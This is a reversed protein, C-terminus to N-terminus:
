QAAQVLGAGVENSPLSLRRASSVLAQWLAAGRLGTAQAHLAACGAVHPTAMSTGNITRYRRPMPWSSRVDVGPGTLDIQGGNPNIGINSFSALRFRRDIASVAMISPSNAPRSVPRRGNNGAAAVILTGANLARRAVQEYIASPGAGVPVPAGLSMSVIQCKSAVAWNIGALIGGDGGSGGNSLVKGAYIAAEHAVGYRPLQGPSKPGAATGICHTGHGHGDQVQQGPVFSQRSIRRGKFDPHGLDMGTDLVALRIGKGSHCSSHAQVAQLGWTFQSESLAAVAAEDAGEDPGHLLAEALRDVGDRFGRVYAPSAAFGADDDLDQIAYCVQEPERMEVGKSDDDMAAVAAMQDSDGDVVMVGIESLVVADADAVAEPTFDQTKFDASHAVAKLGAAKALTKEAAAGDDEAILVLYRGTFQPESPVGGTLDEATGFLGRTGNGGTM